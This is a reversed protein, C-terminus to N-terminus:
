LVLFYHYQMNVIVVIYCKNKFFLCDRVLVEQM